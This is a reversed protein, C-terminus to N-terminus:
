WIARPIRPLGSRKLAEIVPIAIVTTLISLVPWWWSYGFMNSTFSLEIPYAFIQWYPATWWYYFIEIGALVGLFVGIYRKKPDDLRSWEPVWTKLVPTFLLILWPLWFFTTSLYFLADPTQGPVGPFIYPYVFWMITTFIVAIVTLLYWRNDDVNMFLAVFVAPLIGTLVVDLLGLPFMAPSIFMGIFGGIVAAIIGGIPGLVLPGIATFAVSLPVFGGGGVYPFVPVLALVGNIAGYVAIFAISAGGYGVTARERIREEEGM